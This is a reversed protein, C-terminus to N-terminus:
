AVKPASRLTTQAVRNVMDFSTLILDDIGTCGEQILRMSEVGNLDIVQKCIHM